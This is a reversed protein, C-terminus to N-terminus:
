NLEHMQRGRPILFTVSDLIFSRVRGMGKVQVREIERTILGPIPFLIIITALGAFASLFMHTCFGSNSSWWVEVWSDLLHVGYMASSSRSYCLSLLEWTLVRNIVAIFYSVAGIELFDRAQGINNLDSTVLNNIKGTLYGTKNKGGQEIVQGIASSDLADAKLRIRLSHEFLLHTILAEARVLIWSTLYLYMNQCLSTMIPGVFLWIIWFWPRVIAGSGKAEIYRNYYPWQRSFSCFRKSFLRLSVTSVLQLHLLVCYEWHPPSPWWSFIM